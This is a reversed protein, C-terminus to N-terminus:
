AVLILRVVIAIMLAGIVVASLTFLVTRWPQLENLYAISHGYRTIIFAGFIIEATLTHGGLMVYLLGLILFPTIMVAANTYARLVRAVPEPDIPDLKTKYALSDEHNVAAGSRTRAVGSWCWLWMLNLVLVVATIAYAVMITPLHTDETM